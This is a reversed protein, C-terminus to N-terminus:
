CDSYLVSLPSMDYREVDNKQHFACKLTKGKKELVCSDSYFVLRHGVAFGKSIVPFLKNKAFGVVRMFNMLVEDAIPAFTATCKLEDRIWFGSTECKIGKEVILYKSDLPICFAFPKAPEDRLYLEHCKTNQHAKKKRGDVNMQRLCKHKETDNKLDYGEARWGVWQHLLVLLFVFALLFNVIISNRM